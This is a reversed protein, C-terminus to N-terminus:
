LYSQFFQDQFSLDLRILKASKIKKKKNINTNILVLLVSSLSPICVEDNNTLIQYLRPKKPESIAHAAHLCVSSRLVSIQETRGKGLM